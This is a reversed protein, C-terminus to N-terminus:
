SSSVFFLLRAGQRGLNGFAARTSSSARSTLTSESKSEDVVHYHPVKCVLGSPPLVCCSPGLRMWGSVVQGSGGTVVKM